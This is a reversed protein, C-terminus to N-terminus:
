PQRGSESQDQGTINLDTVNPEIKGFSFVIRMGRRFQKYKLAYIIPNIASNIFGLIVGARYFSSSFDLPVGFCFVMFVMQNPGWCLAYALFVMTLMKLVNKRARKLGTSQSHNQHVEGPAIASGRLERFCRTYAVSMVTLPILYQACVNCIGVFQGFAPSKWIKKTLCLGKDYHQVYLNFSKFVLGILWEVVLMTTVRKPTFMSGHHLPYVIAYYRELTIVVLNLSSVLFCAWLLYASKWVRCLIEGFANDSTHSIHPGFHYGVMLVSTVLDIVAQHVILCNTLTRLAPVKLFVLCVLANGLMGSIGICGSMINLWSLVNPNEDDGDTTNGSLNGSM